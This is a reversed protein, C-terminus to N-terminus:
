KWKPEEKAPKWYGWDHTRWARPLLNCYLLFCRLFTHATKAAVGRRLRRHDHAWVKLAPDFEVRFGSRKLRWGLESDKNCTLSLDFGGVAWFAETQVVVSSGSVAPIGLRHAWQQGRALWQYYNNFETTSLKPGYIASAAPRQSLREFYGPAFAGDADTFLLWPTRAAEAGAQRAATVNAARRLVTTLNPRMHRVRRVTDDTSADVVILRVTAPLFALLRGVNHAENRTPVIVSLQALNIM